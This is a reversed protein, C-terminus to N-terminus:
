KRSASEAEKLADAAQAVGYEAALRLWRLGEVSEPDDDILLQGYMYMAFSHGEEAATRYLERARALDQYRASGLYLIEALLVTSSPAGLRSGESCWHFAADEDLRAGNKGYMYSYCAKHIADLNGTKALKLTRPFSMAEVDPTIVAAPRTSCAALAASLVVVPLVKLQM